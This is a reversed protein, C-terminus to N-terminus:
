KDIRFWDIDAWGGDNTVIHPRTCFTGVKAGIWKGERVQFEKGLPKFKKGNTSYSLQCKVVLDSGGESKSIKEGTTTIQAKLYIEGNKLPISENVTEKNGKDAKKCEVQSM